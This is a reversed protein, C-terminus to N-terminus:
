ILMVANVKLLLVELSLVESINIGLKKQCLNYLYTIYNRIESKKQESMGCNIYPLKTRTAFKSVKETYNFNLVNGSM